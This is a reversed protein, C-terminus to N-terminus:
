CLTLKSSTSSIKFKRKLELLEKYLTAMQCRSVFKPALTILRDKSLKLSIQEEIASSVRRRKIQLSPLLGVDKMKKLLKLIRMTTQITQDLELELM